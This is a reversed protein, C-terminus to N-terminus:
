NKRQTNVLIMHRIKMHECLPKTVDEGSYIRPSGLEPLACRPPIGPEGCLRIPDALGNSRSHTRFVGQELLPAKSVETRLAGKDPFAKEIFRGEHPARCGGREHGQAVINDHTHARPTGQNENDKHRAPTSGAQHLSRRAEHEGMQADDQLPVQHVVRVGM